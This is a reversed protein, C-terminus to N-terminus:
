RGSPYRRANIPAPVGEMVSIRYEHDALEEKCEAILTNQDTEASEILSVKEELAAVQEQLKTILDPVVAGILTMIETVKLEIDEEIKDKTDSLTKGEIINQYLVRDGLILQWKGAHENEFVVAKVTLISADLLHRQFSGQEWELTFNHGNIFM